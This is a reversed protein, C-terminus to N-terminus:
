PLGSCYSSWFKNKLLLTGIMGMCGRSKTKEGFSKDGYVLLYEMITEGAVVGVDYFFVTVALYERGRLKCPGDVAHPRQVSTGRDRHSGEWTGAHSVRGKDM